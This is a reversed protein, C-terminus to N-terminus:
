DIELGTRGPTRFGREMKDLAGIKVTTTSQILRDDIFGTNINLLMKM